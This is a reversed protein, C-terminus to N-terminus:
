RSPAQKQFQLKVQWGSAGTRERIFPTYTLELYIPDLKFAFSENENQTPEYVLRHYIEFDPNETIEKARWDPVLCADLNSRMLDFIMRADQERREKELAGSAEYLPCSLTFVDTEGGMFARMVNVTCKVNEDFSTSMQWADPVPEDNQLVPAGRLSRFPTREDRADLISALEACPGSATQAQDDSESGCAALLLAPIVVFLARM